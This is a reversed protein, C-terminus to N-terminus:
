VSDGKQDIVLEPRGLIRALDLIMLTGNEALTKGAFMDRVGVAAGEALAEVQSGGIRTLGEVGGVLLATRLAGHAVVVLRSAKLLQQQQGTLLPGLDTVAVIEGRLNFIGRIQAPTRPVRVLEPPKIVEKCLSAVMAYRQTDIRVVLYEEGLEGEQEESVELNRWYDDRMEQLTKQIDYDRQHNM